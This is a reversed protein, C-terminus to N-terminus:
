NEPPRNQNGGAGPNPLNIYPIGAGAMLKNLAPLDEAALKRVAESAEKVRDSLNQIQALDNETPAATYGEFTFVLQQVRQPLPAPREVVPPGANGLTPQESPPTGWNPYIEDIKKLLDEAAKKVNDPVNAAGPRKWGEMTNNLTTRLSTITFQATVAQVLVPTLKQIAERRKVRDEATINVRPDEGLMVNKSIEKEGLKIKVTYNGPDVRFGLRSLFGGFGGGEGGAAGGEGGGGLQPVAARSRMDWIVRNIGPKAECQGQAGGGFGGGGGTQGQQAAQPNAPQRRGCNIERV